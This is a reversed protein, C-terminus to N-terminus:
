KYLDKETKASRIIRKLKYTYFSPKNPQNPAKERLVEIQYFRGPKPDFGTIPDRLVHWVSAKDTKIQLCKATSTEDCNAKRSHVFFTQRDETAATAVPKEERDRVFRLFDKTHLDSFTLVDKELSYETANQLTATFLGEFQGTLEDCFMETSTLPGVKIKHDPLVTIEGGFINCGSRGGIRKNDTVTLDITMKEIPFEQSPSFNYGTLKWKGNLDGHSAGRTVCANILILLGYILILKTM